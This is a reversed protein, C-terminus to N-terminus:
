AEDWGINWNKRDTKPVIFFKRKIAAGKILFM